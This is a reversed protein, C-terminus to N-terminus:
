KKREGLSRGVRHHALRAEVPMPSSRNSGDTWRDRAARTWQAAASLDGGTRALVAEMLDLAGRLQHLAEGIQPDSAEAHKRVAAEFTARAAQPESREAELAASWGAYLAYMRGEDADWLLQTARHYSDRAADLQDGLHYALALLGTDTGEASVDGRDRDIALAELLWERALEFEGRIVALLGLHRLANAEAPRDGVWRALSAAETLTEGAEPYRGLHIDILGLDARNRSESGLAGLARLHRNAARYLACAEDFRGTRRHVLALSGLAAAEAVVVGDARLGDCAARLVTEAEALRGSALYLCGLVADVRARKSPEIPQQAAVAAELAALADASAGIQVMARGQETRVLLVGDADSWREAISLARELDALALPIRGAKRLAAARMALVQLQLLPDSGLIADCRRLVADLMELGYFLPGRAELVPRLALSARLALEVAEPDERVPDIGIRVADVLGDWEAALRAVIEPRDRRDAAAVLAACSRVLAGARRERLALREEEPLRALVLERVPKEVAYRHLQAGGPDPADRLLGRRELREVIAIADGPTEDLARVDFSGPLASCAVLVPWEEPDLLDILPALLAEPHLTGARLRELQQDPPLRDVFGALLRIPLPMGDVASVLEGLTAPDDVTFDVDVGRARAAYIRVGDGGEIPSGSGIAVPRVEYEVEGRVRLRGAANVVCCLRPATRLWHEISASIEPSTATISDFVVLMPGRAAFAYGLQDVASSATSREDLPVGLAWSTARCLAAVTPEDVRCLWVGGAFRGDTARAAAFQRVLRSKGVGPGGTVAISRFGLAVLESLAALDGQRGFVADDAPGVNSRRARQSAVAAFRRGDLAEPMVQLLRVEGDVGALTQPGLDRVVLAGPLETVQEWATETVLVQGGHAVAVVRTAQYVGPGDIGGDPAIRIRGRHIAIRARLGRFLVRGDSGRDEAAEPRVLLTAPWDLALLDQQLRVAFRIADAPHAFRCTWGRATSPRVQGGNAAALQVAMADLLMEGRAFAAPVRARLASAGVVQVVAVVGIDPENM